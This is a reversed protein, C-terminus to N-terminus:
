DDSDYPGYNIFEEGPFTGGSQAVADRPWGITDRRDADGQEEVLGSAIDGVGPEDQAPSMDPSSMRPGGPSDMAQIATSAHGMASSWENYIRQLGLRLSRQNHGETTLLNSGDPHYATGQIIESGRGLFFELFSSLDESLSEDLYPSPPRPSEPFIVDWIAYWQAEVTGSARKKLFAKQAESLWKRQFQRSNCLPVVSLHTRLLQENHFERGCRDCVCFKAHARRLHQKVDKIRRLRYAFCQRWDVSNHKWFPCAFLVTLNRYSSPPATEAEDCPEQEPQPSVRTGAPTIQQYSTSLGSPFFPNSPGVNYHQTHGNGPTGSAPRQRSNRYETLLLDVIPSSGISIATEPGLSCIYDGILHRELIYNDDTERDDSGSESTEADVTTAPSTGPTRAGIDSSALSEPSVIDYESDIMMGEPTNVRLSETFDLPPGTGIVELGPEPLSTAWDRSTFPWESPPPNRPPDDAGVHATRRWVVCADCRNHLCQCAPTASVTMGADHCQCCQWLEFSSRKPKAPM